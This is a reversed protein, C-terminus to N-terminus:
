KGKTKDQSSDLMSRWSARKRSFPVQTERYEAAEVLDRLDVDSIQKLIEQDSELFFREFKLKLLEDEKEAIISDIPGKMTFIERYLFDNLVGAKFLNSKNKLTEIEGAKKRIELKHENKLQHYVYGREEWEILNKTEDYGVQLYANYYLQKSQWTVWGLRALEEKKLEADHQQQTWNSYKEKDSKSINEPMPDENETTFLQRIVPGHGQRTVEKNHLATQEQDSGDVEPTEPEIDENPDKFTEKTAVQTKSPM